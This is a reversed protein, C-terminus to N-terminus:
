QRAKTIDDAVCLKDAAKAFAVDREVTARSVGTEAAIQAATTPQVENQPDAEGHQNVGQPNTVEKKRGEFLRAPDHYSM